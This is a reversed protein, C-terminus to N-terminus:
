WSIYRRPRTLEKFITSLIIVPLMIPLIIPALILLPFILPFLVIGLVFLAITHALIEMGGAFISLGMEIPTVVGWEFMTSFFDVSGELLRLPLEGALFALSTFAFKGVQLTASAFSTGFEGIRALAIEETTQDVELRPADRMQSGIVVGALFGLVAQAM